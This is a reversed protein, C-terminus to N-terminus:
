TRQQQEQHILSQGRSLSSPKQTPPVTTLKKLINIKINKSIMIKNRKKPLNGIDNSHKMLTHYKKFSKHLAKSLFLITKEERLKRSMKGLYQPVM